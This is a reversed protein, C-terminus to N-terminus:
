TKAQPPKNNLELLRAITAQTTTLPEFSDKGLETYLIRNSLTKIYGYPSVGRSAMDVIKDVQDPTVHAAPLRCLQELTTHGLGAIVRTYVAIPSKGAALAHRHIAHVLLAGTGRLGAADALEVIDAPVDPQGPEASVPIPAEGAVPVPVVATATSPAPLPTDDDFLASIRDSLPSSSM